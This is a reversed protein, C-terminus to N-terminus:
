PGYVLELGNSASVLGPAGTDLPFAQHYWSLGVWSPDVNVPLTFAGSGVVGPTGTTPLAVVVFVPGFPDVFTTLGPLPFAPLNTSALGV